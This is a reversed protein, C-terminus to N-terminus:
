AARRTCQYIRDVMFGATALSKEMAFTAQRMTPAKVDMTKVEYLCMTRKFPKKVLVKFSYQM